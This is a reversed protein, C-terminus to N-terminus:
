KMRKWYHYTCLPKYQHEDGILIESSDSVIRYTYNANQFVKGEDKCDLCIALLKNVSTAHPILNLVDGFKMANSNGDLGAVYVLKGEKLCSLVFPILDTFFQAEDIGIINYDLPAIESNELLLSQLLDCKISVIKSSMSTYSSNHSSLAKENRNDLSSNIYLVKMGVDAFTTLDKLLHTSKGSFMPGVYLTLSGTM